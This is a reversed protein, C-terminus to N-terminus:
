SRYSANIKVYNYSLDCTYVEQSYNGNNLNIIVTIEKNKVIEKLREESIDDAKKGGSVVKENGLYIDVKAPNFNVGSYGVACIIRGWNADEGFFATKVLSSKAVTMGVKKAEERSKANKVQITIFKTAGEGDKVIMFALKKLVQTLASLFKFYDNNESTIKNNKASGNAMVIVSDNTSTDTDVTILNFSNDLAENLCKNLIKKDINIDSVVFSLLTAMNPCIMGAGKAVGLISIELGEDLTIKEFVMKQFSDTTMIAKTFANIGSNSLNECAKEIGPRIKDMPLLNGIVGTSAVLVENNALGLKSATLKIMEKADKDGQKGTCANANGSNVIIARSSDSKINKIDLKVPAAKIKNKTFAGAAIGPLESYIIGIDPDGTKKIECSIGSFKFGPVNYEITKEETM